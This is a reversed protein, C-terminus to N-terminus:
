LLGSRARCLLHWVTLVSPVICTYVPLGRLKYLSESPLLAWLHLSAALFLHVLSADKTSLDTDQPGSTNCTETLTTSLMSFQQPSTVIPIQIQTQIAPRVTSTWLAQHASSRARTLAARPSATLENGSDKHATKQTQADVNSLSGALILAACRCTRAQSCPRFAASGSM